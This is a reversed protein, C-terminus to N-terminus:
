KWSYVTDITKEDKMRIVFNGQIVKREGNEIYMVFYTSTLYGNYCRANYINVTVLELPGTLVVEGAAVATEVIRKSEAEYATLAEAVKKRDAEPGANVESVSQMTDLAQMIVPRNESGYNYGGASIMANILLAGTYYGSIRIPFFCEPQLMTRRMDETLQDAKRADLQRLVQWEVYNASGEIEEGRCEYEFEYPFHEARYKRCALFERYKDQDFMDLLELLLRNERLRISLNEENYRYNFLAETEKPWCDWGQLQQFGHFMEHIIKSTFEGIEMEEMVNWIAIIEGQYEIATNACFDDTKEIYRGDFYCETDNYLAFKLPVFGEWLRAFDVKAISEKLQNYKEELNMNKM